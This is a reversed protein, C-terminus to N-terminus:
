NRVGNRRYVPDHILGIHSYAVSLSGLQGGGSILDACVFYDDNGVALVRDSLQAQLLHSAQEAPLDPVPFVHSATVCGDLHPDESGTFIHLLDEFLGAHAAARDGGVGPQGGTGILHGLGNRLIDVCDPDQRLLQFAASTDSSNITAFTGSNAEM